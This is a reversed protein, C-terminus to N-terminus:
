ELLEGIEIDMVSRAFDCLFILSYKRRTAKQATQCSDLIKISVLLKKRRSNRTQWFNPLFDDKILHPGNHIEPHLVQPSPSTRLNNSGLEADNPVTDIDRAELEETESRKKNKATKRM